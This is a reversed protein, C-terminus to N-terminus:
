QKKEVFTKLKEHGKQLEMCSVEGAEKYSGVSQSRCM